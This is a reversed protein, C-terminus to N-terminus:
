YNENVAIDDKLKDFTQLGIGSVKKIDEITKFLGNEERYTVIAKAKSPGIGSLSMLKTEDATNINVLISTPDSLEQKNSIMVPVNTEGIYSVYIVMEDLLKTALNLTQDDASPLLGGAIQVADLIRSGVPLTYVGPTKVQGKVDVVVVEPKNPKSPSELQNTKMHTELPLPITIADEITEIKGTLEPTPKHSFPKVFVVILILAVGFIM